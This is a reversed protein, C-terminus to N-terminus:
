TRAANRWAIAPISSRSRLCVFLGRGLRGERHGVSRPEHLQALFVNALTFHILLYTISKSSYILTKYLLWIGNTEM